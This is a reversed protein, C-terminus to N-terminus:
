PIFKKREQSFLNNTKEKLTKMVTIKLLSYNISKFFFRHYVLCVAKVIM